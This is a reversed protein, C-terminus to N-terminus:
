VESHSIEQLIWVQEKHSLNYEGFQDTVTFYTPFSFYKGIIRSFPFTQQRDSLGGSALFNGIL